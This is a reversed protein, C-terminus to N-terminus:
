VKFKYINNYHNDTIKLCDIKVDTKSLLEISSELLHFLTELLYEELQAYTIQNLFANTKKLQEELRSFSTINTRSPVPSIYMLICLATPETM